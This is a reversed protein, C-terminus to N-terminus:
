LQAPSLARGDEQRRAVAVCSGGFPLTKGSGIRRREFSQVFALIRDVFASSTKLEGLSGGVENKRRGLYTPVTRCVFVPIPLFWFFYSIYEIAFGASQLSESLSRTTYRRYHGALEDEHSWLAQFAPVTLFIRGGPQLLSHLVDLFRKDDEIHELVDFMGVAAVSEARFDVSELTSCVVNKLGRQLANFAGVRGPEVVVTPFGSAELGRAVFGNGGGVDFLAGKPPFRRVLDVVIQNRHRFWFSQEEVQSCIENGNDPYSVKENLATVWYGAPDKTLNEAFTSLDMTM